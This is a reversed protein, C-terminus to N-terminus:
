YELLNIRTVFSFMVLNEKFNRNILQLLIKIKYYNNLINM